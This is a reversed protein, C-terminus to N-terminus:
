LLLKMSANSLCVVVTDSNRVAKKIELEWDQGPMIKTEDLWVDFDDAILRKYLKRVKPKDDKSHCLFVKLQGSEFITRRQSKVMYPKSDNPM